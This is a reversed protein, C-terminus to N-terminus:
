ELRIARKTNFFVLNLHEILVDLNKSYLLIDVFYVVMFKSIFAHLVYNMLRMFTSPASTIGFSM